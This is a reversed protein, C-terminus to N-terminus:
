NENYGDDQRSFVWVEAKRIQRFRELRGLTFYSGKHAHSWWSIFREVEASIENKVIQVKRNGVCGYYLQVPM